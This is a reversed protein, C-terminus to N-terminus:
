PWPRGSDALVEITFGRRKARAGDTRVRIGLAVNASLKRKRVGWALITSLAQLKGNISRNTLRASGEDTLMRDHWALVDEAAIRAADDHGLGARFDAIRHRYIRETEENRKEPPMENQWGVILSEITIPSSPQEVKPRKARWDPESYDGQALAVLDDAMLPADKV